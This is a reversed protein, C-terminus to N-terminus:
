YIKELQAEPYYHKLIESYDYGKLAMGKAGTQCLGRGHGFGGGYFVFEVPWNQQNYKIEVKFASSLLKGLTKRIKNEGEIVESKKTGEIEISILHCSEARRQPTIKLIKGLDIGSEALIAQLQDQKYSRQWRFNALREGKLHCFADPESSLWEELDLPSLPFHFNSSIIDCSGDQTHGGCNNSYFVDIPQSESVLILGATEDVAQNTSSKEVRAGKYVQCHVTNCFNFGQRRHRLKNGIAWTRAAIAQTRLAQEPWGPPMESPLVGYLYEELNVLNILQFGQNDPVVEIVGRYQQDHWGAWFNGTGCSLDFITIVTDERKSKILFPKDLGSLLVNGQDDKLQVGARLDAIKNYAPAKQNFLLTYILEKRGKLLVGGSQQDLIQFSSGYKFEISDKIKTIGIRLQPASLAHPSVKVQISEMQRRQATSAAQQKFFVDGLRAKVEALRKQLLKNDPDIAICKAYQKYASSFEGLGTFCEALRPRLETISPDLSIVKRYAEIAEQLRQKQYYINGLKLYATVSDPKSKIVELYCREAEVFEDMDEYSLGLYLLLKPNDPHSFLLHRLQTIAQEPNGKLYYIRGLLSELRIDKFFKLASKTIQIVQDYEVLDKYLYALNLYAKLNRPDDKIIKEYASIAEAFGAQHYVATAKDFKGLGQTYPCPKDSDANTESSITLLLTFVFLYSILLFKNALIYHRLRILLNSVTSRM